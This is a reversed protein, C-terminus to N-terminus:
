AKALLTSYSWIQMSTFPKGRARPEWASFSTVALVDGDGSLSLGSVSAEGPIKILERVVGTELSMRLIYGSGTGFIVAAGDTEEVTALVQHSIDSKMAHLPDFRWTPEPLRVGDPGLMKGCEYVSLGKDTGCWFWRGDRSFGICHPREKPQPPFLQSIDGAKAANIREVWAAMQAAVSIRVGEIEQDSPAQKARASMARLQATAKEMAAAAKVAVDSTDIAQFKAQIAAAIRPSVPDAFGGVVLKHWTPQPELQVVGLDTMAAFVVFKGDPHFAVQRQGGPPFSCLKRHDALSTVVAEQRSAHAVLAGDPSLAASIPLDREPVDGLLLWPDTDVAWVRVRDRAAM